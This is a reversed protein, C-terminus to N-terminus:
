SASLILKTEVIVYSKLVDVDLMKLKSALGAPM